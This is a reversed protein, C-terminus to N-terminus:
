ERWSNVDWTRLTNDVGSSYLTKGDPAFAISLVKELHGRLTALKAGNRANHLEITQDTFYAFLRGDPSSLM